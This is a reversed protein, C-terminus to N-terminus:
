DLTHVVLGSRLKPEFWTSKPPMVQNADAVNMLQVISTPYMSFAVTYNDDKIRRELEKLGRIGGVFDIRKDTRPDGIGLIPSLLNNQMIAVDLSEIPDNADFADEKATLKYWENDLYMGFNHLAEPSYPAVEGLNEIEFKEAVKALFEEKSNGNLDKVIRNYDMVYMQNHPFIISLFYNYEEEGTHNPNAAKKIEYARGASASRHHGDAIYLANMKAFEATLKEITEKDKVVWFIHKVKALDDSEFEYEPENNEVVNNVISDIEEKALYTLFVPGTNANLTLVHKTRDDEKDKRTFEHKKITNALYEEVSASAVIGIQEHDGMIQKYIYLADTEEQFMIGDTILKKFNEAGKQYVAEDYHDIEEPLDIEPKVVHLFSYPNGEALKKAEKSDIVDYPPSAVKSVYNKEPRIGRFAKIKVM